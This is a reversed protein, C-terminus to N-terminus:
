QSYCVSHLSFCRSFDRLSIIEGFEPAECIEYLSKSDKLFYWMKGIGLKDNGLKKLFLKM